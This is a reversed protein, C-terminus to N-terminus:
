SLLFLIKGNSFIEYKQHIQIQFRPCFDGALDGALDLIKAPAPSPGPHWNRGPGPVRDIGAELPQFLAGIDKVTRQLYRWKHIM